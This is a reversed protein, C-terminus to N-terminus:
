TYSSLSQFARASTGTSGTDVITWYDIGDRISTLTEYVTENENKLIMVLGIDRSLKAGDADREADDEASCEGAQLPSKAFRLPM